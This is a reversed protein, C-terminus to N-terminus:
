PNTETNSTFYLEPIDNFRKTTYRLCSSEQLGCLFQIVITKLLRETHTGSDSTVNIKEKM